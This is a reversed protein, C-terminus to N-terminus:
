PLREFHISQGANLGAQARLQSFLHGGGSDIKEIGVNTTTGWYNPGGSLEKYAFVIDGNEWLQTQFTARGVVNKREYGSWQLVLVQRGGQTLVAHNFSAGPGPVLDVWFPAVVGQDIVLKQATTSTNPFNTRPAPWDSTLEAFQSFGNSSLWLPSGATLTSDFYPFAFPMGGPLPAVAADDVLEPLSTSAMSTLDLFPMTSFPDVLYVEDDMCGSGKAGPTGLGAGYSETSPCWFNVNNNPAATTGFVQRNALVEM